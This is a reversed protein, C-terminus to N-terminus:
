AHQRSRPRRTSAPRSRNSRAKGSSATALVVEKARFRAIAAILREPVPQDVPFRITGKDNYEYDALEKKFAAILRANAPYLSYHAKWGAFYIASSGNVKYTPINYSITEQADPLAKRITRRVQELVTQVPRPFGAIYEDIPTPRAATTKM